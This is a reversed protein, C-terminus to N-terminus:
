TTLDLDALSYSEGKSADNWTINADVIQLGGIALAGLGAASSKEDSATTTAKTKDASPQALDDWNTVGAKNKALNLSMGKLVVTSVEVQQSLLPLLKVKVNAQKIEAFYQASFGTANSLSVDNIGVGVWPFISLSLDGKITLDRGTKDKVVAQIEERYDNPDIVMPAVVAAVIILLVLGAIIKLLKGM